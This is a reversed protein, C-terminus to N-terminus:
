FLGSDDYIVSNGVEARGSQSAFARMHKVIAQYNRM